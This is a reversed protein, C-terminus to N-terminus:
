LGLADRERIPKITLSPFSISYTYTNDERDQKDFDKLTQKLCVKLWSVAEERTEFVKVIEEGRIAIWRIM